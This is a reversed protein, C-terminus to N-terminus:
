FYGGEQLRSISKEATSGFGQLQMGLSIFVGNDFINIHRREVGEDIFRALKRQSPGLDHGFIIVLELVVFTENFTADKRLYLCTLVSVSVSYDSSGPNGILRFFFEKFITVNYIFNEFHLMDFAYEPVIRWCLRASCESVIYISEEFHFLFSETPWFLKLCFIVSIFVYLFVVLPFSNTEFVMVNCRVRTM